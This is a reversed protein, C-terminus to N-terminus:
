STRPQAFMDQIRQTTVPGIGSLQGIRMQASELKEFTDVGQLFLLRAFKRSLFHQELKNKFVFWRDFVTTPVRDDVYGSSFLVRQIFGNTSLRLKSGVGLNQESVYSRQLLSVKSIRWSVTNYVTAIPMEHFWLIEIVVVNM